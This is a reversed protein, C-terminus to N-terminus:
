PDQGGTQHVLADFPAPLSSDALLRDGDIVLDV